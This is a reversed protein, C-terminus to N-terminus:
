LTFKFRTLLINRQNRHAARASWDFGCVKGTTHHDLGGELAPSRQGPTSLDGIVWPWVALVSFCCFCYQLVNLLSKLFLGCWFWVFWGWFSLLDNPVESNYGTQLVPKCSADQPPPCDQLNLETWDSLRTGSKAVGHVEASWAERDMVLEWLKSLSMGM